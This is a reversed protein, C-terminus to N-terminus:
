QRAGGSGPERRGAGAPIEARAVIAAGARGPAGPASLKVARHQPSAVTFHGRKVSATARTRNGSRQIGYVNMGAVDSMAGFINEIMLVRRARARGRETKPGPSM